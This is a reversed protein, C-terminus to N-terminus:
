CRERELVERELRERQTERSCRERLREIFRAFSVMSTKRLNDMAQIYCERTVLNKYKELAESMVEGEQSLKDLKVFDEKGSCRFM